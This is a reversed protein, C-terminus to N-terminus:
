IPGERGLAQTGGAGDGTMNGVTPKLRLAAGRAPGPGTVGTNLSTWPLSAAGRRWAGQHHPLGLQGEPTAGLM